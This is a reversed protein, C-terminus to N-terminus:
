KTGQTGVHRREVARMKASRARPNRSIEEETPVVPKRTILLFEPEPETGPMMPIDRNFAVTSEARFFEKVIRDELSHYSIVVIRGGPALLDRADALVTKLSDLEGNVEIRLAQFVRALAKNLFRDPTFAAVVDRLEGTTHVPRHGVISRAIRRANQEEGYQSIVDALAREEYTNVIDWASSTQRRDMRMDLREDGRFTFGREVADIQHSSIGLDLLIGSIRPWSATKVAERLHRFNTRVFTVRDAFGELRTRASDLAEDDADLCLLRGPGQLRSCIEWAHGGGGVTGDVFAGETDTMLLDVAERCLAPIHYVTGNV